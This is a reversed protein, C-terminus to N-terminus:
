ASAQDSFQDLGSQHETKGIVDFLPVGLFDEGFRCYAEGDSAVSENLYHYSVKPQPETLDTDPSVYVVSWTPMGVSRTPTVSAVEGIRNAPLRILDGRSAIDEVSGSTRPFAIVDGGAGQTARAEASEEGIKREDLITAREEDLLEVITYSRKGYHYSGSRRAHDYHSEVAEKAMEADPFLGQWDCNGDNCSVLTGTKTSRIVDRPVPCGVCIDDSNM